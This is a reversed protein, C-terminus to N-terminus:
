EVVNEQTKAFDSSNTAESTEIKSQITSATAENAPEPETLQLNKALNITIKTEYGALVLFSHDQAEYSPLNITFHHEGPTVDEILLPSFTVEQDDFSIFANEPYTEFSVASKKDTRKRLEFITSSSNKPTEGPNYVIITLTGKELFIPLNFNSLSEEDPDLKLVHEGSQLKEELLPAQGLYNDDLFVSANGSPYEIQLGARSNKKLPDALTFFLSVGFVLLAILLFFVKKFM